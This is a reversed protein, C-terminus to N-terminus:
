WLGGDPDIKRAGWNAALVLVLSIASKFFGVATAYSYNNVQQLGTRYIYYDITEAVSMVSSNILAVTQEFGVTLVNALSLIFMISIVSRISPLTVHLLQKWRGAGDVTAADYLAPDVGALAALYIIASWGLEKWVASGVFFWVFLKTESLFPKVTGGLAVIIQNVIGNSSFFAFLLGSIVIWSIFHPLYSLTQIVKKLKIATVENLMLAFVIPFPFAFFIRAMSIVATNRFVSRFSGNSFFREFHEFGVWPSGFIGLNFSYDKFAIIIGAMPAFMFISYYLLVPILLIYLPIFRKVANSLKKRQNNKTSM